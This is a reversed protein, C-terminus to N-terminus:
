RRVLTRYHQLKTQENNDGIYAPVISEISTKCAVTDPSGMSDIQLSKYNDPTFPKGPMYQLISAMVKSLGNPLPMIWKSSKKLRKVYLVLDLLNYSKPGVLEIRKGQTGTDTIANIFADAVDGVYVPSFKSKPCALPIFPYVNLMSSFRNLFNDNEGFIVSPRFSTVTLGANTFTHAMNEAEGKTRLYISNGSSANANLASMHLLRQVNTNACASLVKQTLDVHIKRFTANKTLNENIIGILNIVIDAQEFHKNLSNEKFLNVEIVSINPIVLLDRNTELRRTLVTIHKVKPSLKAIISHGVFGSGGLICVNLNNM